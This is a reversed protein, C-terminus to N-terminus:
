AFMELAKRAAELDVALPSFEMGVFGEFGTELLTDRVAPYDITGSGPEHRGPMDAAHVYGIWPALNRLEIPADEGMMSLHYVDYLMKVEPREVRELIKLAAQSSSLFCGKHDLVTNLPELLLTIEMEAAREALARLAFVTSVTKEEASLARTPAASGDPQLVDTLMMINPCGLRAAVEFVQEMEEMLGGRAVPDILSHARNGSMAAITVGHRECAEVMANLDKDRWDWFEVAPYGLRAATGIRDAFPQDQFLMELCLSTKLRKEM